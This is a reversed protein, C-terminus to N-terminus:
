NLQQKRKYLLKAFTEQKIAHQRCSHQYLCSAIKMKGTDKCVQYVAHAARCHIM